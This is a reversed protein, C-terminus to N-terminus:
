SVELPEQRNQLAIKLLGPLDLILSVGGDGLITAGAIGPIQFFNEEMSKIVVQQQDLIKDVLLGYREGAQEVVVVLPDLNPPDVKQLNFIRSLNLKPLYEGRLEIVEGQKQLTKHQHGLPKLTELVSLLPITFIQNEVQVLMGEIIALTLPLKIQFTSGKGLESKIFIAGRLSEIDQRVADMGVGRGSIDSISESTSFGPLFLLQFAEEESLETEDDLLQKSRAIDKIKEADIGAGDDQVEIFVHGESHFAKLEIKGEPTKGNKVREEQLEIGHDMANRILHKLPGGLKESVTKDLETEGGSIELKIKKGSKVSYDRVIRQLPLFAGKIPVMRINMVQDQLERVVIDSDDIIQQYRDGLKRNLTRFEQGLEKLRAQNIVTEGVLNMLKDLKFNSVHISGGSDEKKQVQPRPQAPKEIKQTQPQVTEKNQKSPLDEAEPADEQVPQDEGQNIKQKAKTEKPPGQIRRITVGEEELFFMLVNELDEESKETNLLVSWHLYLKSPDLIELQPISHVHATVICEGLEHLDKLLLLPDGGEQLLEEPFRLEILFRSFGSENSESVETQLTPEPDAETQPEGIDASTGSLKQIEELSAAVGQQDYSEIGELDKCFSRLCDISGLLASILEPSTSKEGGRVDSLLSEVQHTYQQLEEFGIMGAGGKITHFGRFATNVAEQNSPDNELLLLSEEIQDEMDGAEELFLKLAEPDFRSSDIM